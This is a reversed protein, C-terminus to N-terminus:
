KGNRDKKRKARPKVVVTEGAPSALMKNPLNFKRFDDHGTDAYLSVADYRMPYSADEGDM